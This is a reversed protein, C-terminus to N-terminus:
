EQIFERLELVDQEVLTDVQSRLEWTAAGILISFHGTELDPPLLALREALWEPSIPSPSTSLLFSSPADWAKQLLFCSEDIEAETLLDFM